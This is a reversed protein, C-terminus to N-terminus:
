KRRFAFMGGLILLVAAGIIVFILTQSKAKATAEAAVASTEVAGAASPTQTASATTAGASNGKGGVQKSGITLSGGQYSGSGSTVNTPTDELAKSALGAAAGIAAGYPTAAALGGVGGSSSALSSIDFAV